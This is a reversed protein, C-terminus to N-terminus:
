CEACGNSGREKVRPKLGIQKVFGEGRLKVEETRVAKMSIAQVTEESSSTKTKTKLQWENSNAAQM